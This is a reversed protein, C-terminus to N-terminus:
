FESFAVNTALQGESGPSYILTVAKTSWPKTGIDVVEQYPRDPEDPEFMKLKLGRRKLSALVKSKAESLLIKLTHCKARM